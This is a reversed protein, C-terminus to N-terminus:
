MGPPFGGKRNNSQGILKDAGVNERAPSAGVDRAFSVFLVSVL